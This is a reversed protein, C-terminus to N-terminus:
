QSSASEFRSYNRIFTAKFTMSIQKHAKFPKLCLYCSNPTWLELINVGANSDVAKKGKDQNNDKEHKDLGPIGKQNAGGSNEKQLAAGVLAYINVAM